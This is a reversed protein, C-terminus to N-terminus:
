DPGIEVSVSVCGMEGDFHPTYPADAERLVSMREGPEIRRYQGRTGLDRQVREVFSQRGVALAESWQPERAHASRSPIPHIRWGLGLYAFM